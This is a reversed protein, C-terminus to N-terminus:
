VLTYLLVVFVSAFSLYFTSYLYQKLQFLAPRAQFDGPQQLICHLAEFPPLSTSFSSPCLNLPCLMTPFCTHISLFGRLQHFIAPKTVFCTTQRLKFPKPRLQFCLHNCHPFHRRYGYFVPKHGQVHCMLDSSKCQLSWLKRGIHAASVILKIFCQHRPDMFLHMKGQPM